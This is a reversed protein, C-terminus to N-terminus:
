WAEPCIVCFFLSLAPPEPVHLYFWVRIPNALVVYMRHIYPLKPLSIVLYYWSHFLVIVYPTIICDQGVKRMVSVETYSAAGSPLGPGGLKKLLASRAVGTGTKSERRSSPNAMSSFPHPAANGTAYPLNLIPPKIHSTLYPLNCIPTVYTCIRTIYTCIRTVYTCIPTVYTCIHPAASGTVYPSPFCVCVCVCVCVCACACVCAYVCMLLLGSNAHDKQTLSTCYTTSARQHVNICTSVRKHVSSCVSAHQYACICMLACQHVNICM